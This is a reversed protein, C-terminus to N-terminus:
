GNIRCRHLDGRDLTELESRQGDDSSRMEMLSAAEQLAAREAQHAQQNTPKTVQHGGGSDRTHRRKGHRRPHKREVQKPGITGGRYSELWAWAEDPEQFFHTTGDGLPVEDALQGDFTWASVRVEIKREGRTKWYTLPEHPM